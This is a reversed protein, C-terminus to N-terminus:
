TLEDPKVNTLAFYIAELDADEDQQTQHRPDDFSGAVTVRGKDLLVARDTLRAVDSLIHTSVLVCVGSAALERVSSRLEAASGPDLGNFPEDLLLVNAGHLLAMVLALRRRMGQSMEHPLADCRDSLEFRTLLDHAKGQWDSLRYALAVFVVHEWVSVGPYLDRQEPM